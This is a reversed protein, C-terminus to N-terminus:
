ARSPETAVDVAHRHEVRDGLRDLVVAARDVARDHRDGGREGLVRHELRELVADLQDHDHGLPNGRRSTASITSSAVSRSARIM